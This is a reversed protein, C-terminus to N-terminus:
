SRNEKSFKWEAWAKGILIFLSGIIHVSIVALLIAAIATGEGPLFQFSLVMVLAAALVALVLFRAIIKKRAGM